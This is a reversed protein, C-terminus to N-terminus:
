PTSRVWARSGSLDVADLQSTLRGIEGELRSTRDILKVVQVETRVHEDTSDAYRKEFRELAEDHRAAQSQLVDIDDDARQVWRDIFELGAKTASATGASEIRHARGDKDADELRLLSESVPAIMMVVFAAVGAMSGAAVAVFAAWPTPSPASEQAVESIRQRLSEMTEVLSRMGARTEARTEGIDRALEMLLEHDSRGSVRSGGEEADTM